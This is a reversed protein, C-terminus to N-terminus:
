NEEPVVQKLEEFWNQVLTIETARFPDAPEVMLFRQGNLSVDYNARKGGAGIAFLIEYSGITEGARLPMTKEVRLSAM